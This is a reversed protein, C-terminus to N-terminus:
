FMSFNMTINRTSLHPSLPKLVTFGFMSKCFCLSFTQQKLLSVEVTLDKDRLHVGFVMFYFTTMMSVKKLTAQFVRPLAHTLGCRLQSIVRCHKANFCIWMFKHMLM